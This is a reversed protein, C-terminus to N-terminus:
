STRTFIIAQGGDRAMSLEMTDSARVERTTIVVPTEFARAARAGDAYITASWRGPELFDLPIKLTRASENTIAGLFWRVGSRRAIVTFEGIAGDIAHTEDWVTPCEDFWTLEPWEKTRYKEPTDYWYLFTLPNYYIAALALQHANTTRNRENAYCITYDIPGAAARTFPLTANHRSTPFQENGRVGELAVYNPLTRELGAPRLNDHLNVLLRHEGCSRVIECVLNNDAQRGEWVFGFKIGAVGWAQYTRLIAALQTMAPVRDVYLIVGIGVARARDIIRQLDLGVIPRTADSADTGDGYWHADFEVFELRRQKAFDVVALAGETTYPKVIRV